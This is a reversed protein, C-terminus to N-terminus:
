LPVLSPRVLCELRVGYNREQVDCLWVGQSSQRPELVHGEIQILTDDFRLHARVPTGEPLNQFVVAAGQRVSKRSDEEAWSRLQLTGGVGTTVHFLPRDLLADRAEASCCLITAADHKISWEDTSYPVVLPCQACELASGIVVFTYFVIWETQLGPASTFDTQRYPSQTHTWVQCGVLSPIPGSKVPLPRSLVFPVRTTAPDVAFLIITESTGLWLSVADFLPNWTGNEEITFQATRFSQALYDMCRVTVERSSSPNGTRSDGTTENNLLATSSCCQQQVAFPTLFAFTVPANLM